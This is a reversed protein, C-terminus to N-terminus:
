CEGGYAHKPEHGVRGGVITGLPVEIVGRLPYHKLFEVSQRSLDLVLYQAMHM